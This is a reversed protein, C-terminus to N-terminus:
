VSCFDRWAGIFAAKDDNELVAIVGNSVFRQFGAYGGLANKGNIEGCVRTVNGVALYVNRFQASSPDRLRNKAAVQANAMRNRQPSTADGWLVKEPARYRPKNETVAPQQTKTDSKKIWQARRGESTMAYENIRYWGGMEQKISVRAGALMGGVISAGADPFNRVDADSIVEVENAGAPAALMMIIFLIALFITKLSDLFHLSHM